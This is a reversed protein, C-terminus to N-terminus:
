ASLPTVLSLRGSASLSFGCALSSLVEISLYPFGAFLVLGGVNPDEM